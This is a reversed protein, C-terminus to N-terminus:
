LPYSFGRLAYNPLAPCPDRSVVVQPIRARNAAPEANRPRCQPLPQPAEFPVALGAQLLLTPPRVVRGRLLDTGIHLLPDEGQASLPTEAHLPDTRLQPAQMVHLERRRHDVLDQDPV